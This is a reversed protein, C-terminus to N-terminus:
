VCNIKITKVASSCFEAHGCAAFTLRPLDHWKFSYSIFHNIAFNSLLFLHFFYNYCFSSFILLWELLQHFYKIHSDVRKQPSLFTLPQPTQIIPISTLYIEFCTKFALHHTEEFILNAMSEYYFFKRLIIHADIFLSMIM